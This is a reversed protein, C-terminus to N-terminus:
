DCQGGDVRIVQGTIQRAETQCLFGVAAAIDQPQCLEGTIAEAKAADRFEAPVALTMPTDVWGPEVVNVTVGSRGLERATSKALGHLGAKSAAYISQGVKGRSGNISGILVCRGWQAKRMTAAAHHIQLWAGRLNVNIVADFDEVPQKWIMRDRAIGASHVVILPQWQAHLAAVAETDSCDSEYAQLSFGETAALELLSQAEAAQGLHTFAVEHGDRALQLVIAAGLGGSGGTVLARRSSSDPANSM